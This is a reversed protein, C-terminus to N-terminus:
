IGRGVIYGSIWAFALNFGGCKGDVDLVEGIFYLNPMIKSEFNVPNIECMSVGGTCVQAKDFSETDTINLRFNEVKECLAKKSNENLENWKKDKAINAQKLLVFMLKYNFISELIEEITRDQMKKARNELWEYFNNELHPLFNIEVEVRKGFSINKSALGSINFVCIGSIGNATLQIEGVDEKLKQGDVFLSVKADCRVNEWDKLFKENSKLQTLAPVVMNINHGFSDAIEYGFGDSGTKPYAKSGTAVVVKDAYIKENNELTIVFSDNQKIVEKVKNGYKVDINRKKIEKDLIERVSAAQNSFPYYYGNKVKPYIGISDLFNLTESKNEESLIEKLTEKNDTEYQEICIDSNWYNCRGNGTLLIKKGCKDNGDILIVQNKESAKLAAIIGSAGAGIIAIKKM